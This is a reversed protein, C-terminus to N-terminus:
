RGAGGRRATGRNGRDPADPPLLGLDRAVPAFADRVEDLDAVDGPRRGRKATRNRNSGDKLVGVIYAKLSGQIDDREAKAIAALVEAEGYDRIARGIFGRLGDRGRTTKEALWDLCENFLKSKLSDVPRRAPAASGDPDSDKFLMLTGSRPTPTGEVGNLPSRRKPTPSAAAPAEPVADLTLRYVNSKRGGGVTLLAVLGRAELRQRIKRVGHETLNNHGAIWGNSAICTDGAEDKVAAALACLVAKEYLTLNLQRARDHALKVLRKSMFLV